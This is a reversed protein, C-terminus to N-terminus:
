VRRWKKWNEDGKPIQLKLNSLARASDIASYSLLQITISRIKQQRKNKMGRKLFILRARISFKKLNKTM